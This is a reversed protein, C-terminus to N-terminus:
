KVVVACRWLLNAGCYCVQNTAAGACAQHITAIARPCATGHEAGACAPVSSPDALCDWKTRGSNGRPLCTCLGDTASACITAEHSECTATCAPVPDNPDSRSPDVGPDADPVPAHTDFCAAASFSLLAILFYAAPPPPGPM